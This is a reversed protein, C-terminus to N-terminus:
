LGPTDRWASRRNIRQLWDKGVLITVDSDIDGISDVQVEGLGLAQQVAKAGQVDGKQAIIRTKELPEPWDSQVLLNGYGGESLQSLARDVAAPDGTSDQISIRLPPASTERLSDGQGWEESLDGESTTAALDWRGQRTQRGPRLADDGPGPRDGRDADDMIDAYYDELGQPVGPPPSVEFYNKAIRDIEDQHPLWYSADYDDPSSFQGPLMVMQVDSRQTRSAFNVLAFLEEVSLNTDLHSRVISLVKPLRALTRPTLAQEIFARMLVQQRQVRGIDGKSDYRFRLFQLAQDGNLRQQGQKLNIYLHQSDDQYKMDQPVYVEVGGLADILKEIAQINVRVYRDIGVGNLLDSTTQAALAPGGELNAENMKVLGLGPVNARTDRPISLLTLKNDRPDFRLLLMTDSLGDFTNVLAHYGLEESKNALDPIDSTLVKTGLLLINVPRNLAPLNLNGSAIAEGNQDFVAADESSLQHQLLPTSSLSVALLAGATASLLSAVTLVLAIGVWPVRYGQAPKAATRRGTQSSKKPKGGIPLPPLRLAASDGLRHAGLGLTRLRLARPTEKPDPACRPM